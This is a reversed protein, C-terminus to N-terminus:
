TRRESAGIRPFLPAGRFTSYDGAGATITITAALALFLGLEHSAGSPFNFVIFWAVTITAVVGLLDAAGNLSM